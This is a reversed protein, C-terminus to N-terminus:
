IGANLVQVRCEGAYYVGAEKKVLCEYIGEHEKQVNYIKLEFLNLSFSHSLEVRSPLKLNKNFRWIIDETGKCYITVVEKGVTPTIFQPRVLTNSSELAM